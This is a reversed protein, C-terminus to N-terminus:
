KTKRIDKSKPLKDNGWCTPCVYSNGKLDSMCFCCIKHKEEMENM